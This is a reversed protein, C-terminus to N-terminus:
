NTTDRGSREDILEKASRSGQRVLSKLRNEIDDITCLGSACALLKSETAQGTRYLNKIDVLLKTRQENFIPGVWDLTIQSTKGRNISSIKEEDNM